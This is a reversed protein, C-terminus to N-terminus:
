GKSERGRVSVVHPQLICAHDSVPGCGYHAGLMCSSVQWSTEMRELITRVESAVRTRVEEEMEEKDQVDYM